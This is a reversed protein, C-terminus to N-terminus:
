LHLDGNTNDDAEPVRKTMSELRTADGEEQHGGTVYRWFGFVGRAAGQAYDAIGPCGGRAHTVAEKMWFEIEEEAAGTLEAYTWRRKSTM